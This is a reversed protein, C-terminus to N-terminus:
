PGAFIWRRQRNKLNDFKVPKGFNASGGHDGKSFELNGAAAENLGTRVDRGTVMEVCELKGCINKVNDGGTEITAKIVEGNIEEGDKLAGKTVAGETGEDVARLATVWCAIIRDETAMSKAAEAGTAGIVAVGAGVAGFGAVETEEEGTARHGAVAASMARSDAIGFGTAVCEAAEAGMAGHEAIGAGVARIGAVEPEETSTARHGAVGASMAWSSAVESGTAGCDAVTCGAAGDETDGSCPVGFEDVAGLNSSEKTLVGYNASVCNGASEGHGTRVGINTSWDGQVTLVRPTKVAGVTLSQRGYCIM